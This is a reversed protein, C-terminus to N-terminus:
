AAALKHEVPLEQELSSNIKLGVSGEVKVLLGM